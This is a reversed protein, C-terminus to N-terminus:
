NIKVILPIADSLDFVANGAKMRFSEITDARSAINNITVAFHQVVGKDRVASGSAVLKQSWKAGDAIFHARDASQLNYNDSILTLYLVRGAHNEGQVYSVKASANLIEYAPQEQVVVAVPGCITRTIETFEDTETECDQALTSSPILIALLVQVIFAAAVIRKMLVNHDITRFFSERYTADSSIIV